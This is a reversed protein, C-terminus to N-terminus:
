EEDQENEEESQIGPEIISLVSERIMLVPIHQNCNSRYYNFGNLFIGDFTVPEENLRYQFLNGGDKLQNGFFNILEYGVFVYHSPIKGFQRIYNRTFIKYNVTEPNISNFSLLRVGLRELQVMSTSRFKLIDDRVLLPVNDRRIEIASIMNSVVLESSSVLFIHGLSDEKIMLNNHDDTRTLESLVQKSLTDPIAKSIIVQFSDMELREQYIKAVASDGPSYYIAAVKNSFSQVSYEAAKEAVKERTPMFLFSYPNEGIVQSNSSLPNVMNIRKNFSFLNAVQNTKSLLPGIMLDMNELEPNSLIRVMELSDGKTDYIHLNLDIGDAKLSDVGVRIGQYLDLLFPTNDKHKIPNLNEYMFPFLVAVNYQDKMVSTESNAVNYDEPDLEFEEVLFELLSRDQIMYPQKMIKNALVEAITKDYPNKELLFRLTDTDSIGNLYYWKLDKVDEKEGALAAEELGKIYNNEEFYIQSLWYHVEKNMNWRPYRELIQLFMSRAVFKQNLRYASLAYYFSAYNSYSNDPDSTIDKFAEIALEYKGLNFLNKGNLFKNETTVQAISISCIFGSLIILLFIRRM